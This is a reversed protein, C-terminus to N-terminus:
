ALEQTDYFEPKELEELRAIQIDDFAKQRKLEEIKNQEIAQERSKGFVEIEKLQAYELLENNETNIREAIYKFIYNEAASGFQFCNAIRYEETKSDYQSIFVQFDGLDESKVSRPSKNALPFVSLERPGDDYKICNNSKKCDVLFIRRILKAREQMEERLKEHKESEANNSKIKAIGGKSEIYNVLKVAPIDDKFATDLVRGYNHITQRDIKKLTHKLVLKMVSTKKSPMKGKNGVTASAEKIAERLSDVIDERLKSQEIDLGLDYINELWEYLAKNGRSLLQDDIIEFRAALKDASQIFEDVLAKKKEGMSPQKVIVVDPVAFFDRFTTVPPIALNVLDVDVDAPMADLYLEIHKMEIGKKLYCRFQQSTFHAM